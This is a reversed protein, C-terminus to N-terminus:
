IKRVRYATCITQNYLQFVHGSQFVFSNTKDTFNTNSQILMKKKDKHQLHLPTDKTM